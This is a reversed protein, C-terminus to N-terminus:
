ARARRDRAAVWAAGATTAVLVAVLGVLRADSGAGVAEFASRMRTTVPPDASERERPPSRDERPRSPPQPAVAPQEEELQSTPAGYASSTAITTLPAADEGGAADVKAQAKPPLKSQRAVGVGTASSSESTPITEVYQSVASVPPSDAAV